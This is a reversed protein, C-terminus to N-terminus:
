VAPHYMTRASRPIDTFVGNVRLNWATKLEATTLATYSWVKLGARQYEAVTAATLGELNLGAITAGFEKVTAPAVPAARAILFVFTLGPELAHLKPFHVEHFSQVYTRKSLGHARITAVVSALDADSLEEMKLEPSIAASETAAYKAVEDFTPITHGDVKCGSRLSALTKSSVPGTCNTTRDLTKDHMLVFKHDSTLQLDFELVDAHGLAYRMSAMTNEPASATVAGRHGLIVPAPPPPTPKPPPPKVVVPKPAPRRTTAKVLLSWTRANVRGTPRVRQQRQFAKVARVTPRKFRQDVASAPLLRLQNLKVEVARVQPGQSGRHLNLGGASAPVTGALGLACAVALAATLLRLCRPM